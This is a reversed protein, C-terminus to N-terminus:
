AVGHVSEADGGFEMDDAEQGPASADQDQKAQQANALAPSSAKAAKDSDATSGIYSNKAKTADSDDVTPEVSVTPVHAGTSSKAGKKTKKKASTEVGTNDDM